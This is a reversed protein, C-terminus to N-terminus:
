LYYYNIFKICDIIYEILLENVYIKKLIEKMMYLKLTNYINLKDRKRIINYTFIFKNIKYLGDYYGIINIKYHQIPIKNVQNSCIYYDDYFDLKVGDYYELQNKSINLKNPIFYYKCNQYPIEIAIIYNNLKDINDIDDTNNLINNYFKCMYRKLEKRNRVYM